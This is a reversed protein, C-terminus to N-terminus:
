GIRLSCQKFFETNVWDGMENSFLDGTETNGWDGMENRFQDGTETSGWDGM